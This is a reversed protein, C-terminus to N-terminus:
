QRRVKFIDGLIEYCIRTPREAGSSDFARFVINYKYHGERFQGPITTTLSVLYTELIIKTGPNNLCKDKIDNSIHQTWVKYWIQNKEYMAKCFDQSFLSFMTPKWTGRDLYLLNISLTVRDDVQIDWVMTTNGSVTVGDSDMSTSFESMDFLGHIDLTGPGADPCSSFIDEDVVVLEYEAGNAHSIIALIALLILELEM